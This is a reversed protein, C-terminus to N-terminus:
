SRGAQTGSSDPTNESDTWRKPMRKAALTAHCQVCRPVCGGLILVAVMCALRVIRRPRTDIAHQQALAISLHGIDFVGCGESQDIDGGHFFAGLLDLAARAIAADGDFPAIEPREKFVELCFEALAHLFGFIWGLRFEAHHVDLADGDAQPQSLGVPASAAGRVGLCTNLVRSTIAQANRACLTPQSRPVPQPASSRVRSFPRTSISPGKTHQFELQVGSSNTWPIGTSVSSVWCFLWPCTSPIELPMFVARSARVISERTAPYHELEWKSRHTRHRKGPLRLATAFCKEAKPQKAELRM